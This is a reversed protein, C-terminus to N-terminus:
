TLRGGTGRLPSRKRIVVSLEGDEGHLYMGGCRATVTYFRVTGEATPDGITVEDGDMFLVALPSGEAHKETVQDRKTTSKGMTAGGTTTTGTM